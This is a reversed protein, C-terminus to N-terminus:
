RTNKAQAQHQGNEKAFGHLSIHGIIRLDLRAIKKAKGKGRKRGKRGEKKLTSGGKGGGEKKEADDQDNTKRHMM